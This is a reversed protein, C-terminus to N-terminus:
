GHSVEGHYAVVAPGRLRLGRTALDVSITLLDGGRTRVAVPTTAQETHVLVAACASAGTGCALTEDEVGREYTRLRWEGSAPDPAIWNVNIGAPAFQPAQRFSRGHDLVPIDDVDAVPIVLHPVGTNCHHHAPYPSGPLSIALELDTFAPLEVEVDAPGHVVAALQATRTLLTGRAGILGRAHAFAVTCRAGNGCMDAEGGDANHYTMRVTDPGDAGVIILGDAGVGTRRTCLAAIRDTSLRQEALDRGDVMIFDNGAGHMKVFPLTTM